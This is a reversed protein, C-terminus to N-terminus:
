FLGHWWRCLLIPVWGQAVVEAGVVGPGAVTGRVQALRGAEDRSEWGGHRAREAQERRPALPASDFGLASCVSRQEWGGPSSVADLLQQGVGRNDQSKMCEEREAAM